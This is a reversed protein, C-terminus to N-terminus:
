NPNSDRRPLEVCRLHAFLDASDRFVNTNEPSKAKSPKGTKVMERGESAQHIAQSAVTDGPVNAKETESSAVLVAPKLLVAKEFHADTTQLYHMRAVKESHGIWSVVVHSPYIEMLETERTARLNQFPKPWPKLGARKVIKEFTTRLNQDASSYRTVVAGSVVASPDELRDFAAEYAENLVSALEPFMPIVRNEHGKYRKTKPSTVIVRSSDWLVNEWTLSLIESPCRMGGYRCLSFILRWQLDPCAKLIKQSESETIFRAKDTSGTVTVAMGEFPNEDILKAKIAAKFFQRARGCRRRLTNEAQKEHEELWLRFARADAATISRMPRDAGFFDNLNRECTGLNMVTGPEINPLGKIYGAVFEGLLSSARQEILGANSLKDHVTQGIDALWNATRRDIASGAAKAAILEEIHRAIDESKSKNFGSLRITKQTGDPLVFRIRYGQSDKGVSAM